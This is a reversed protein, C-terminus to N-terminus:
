MISDNFSIKLNIIEEETQINIIQKKFDDYKKILNKLFNRWKERENNVDEVLGFELNEFVFSNFNSEEKYKDRERKLEKLKEQKLEELTKQPAYGKLYYQGKYDQEVEQLEYGISKYFNINNGLGVNVQKTEQNVIKCYKKM